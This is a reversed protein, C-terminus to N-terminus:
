PQKMNFIGASGATKLHLQNNARAILNGEFREAGLSHKIHTADHCFLPCVTQTM